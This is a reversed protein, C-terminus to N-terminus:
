RRHLWERGITYEMQRDERWDLREERSEGTNIVRGWLVAYVSRHNREVKRLARLNVLTRWFIRFGVIESVYYQPSEEEPNTPKAEVATTSETGVESSDGGAHRGMEDGASPPTVM